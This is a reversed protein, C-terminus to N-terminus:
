TVIRTSPMATRTVNPATWNSQNTASPVYISVMGPTKTLSSQIAQKVSYVPVNVTRRLSPSRWSAGQCGADYVVPLHPIRDFAFAIGTQLRVGNRQSESCCEPRFAFVTGTALRVGKDAVPIANPKSRFTKWLRVRAPAAVAPCDGPM